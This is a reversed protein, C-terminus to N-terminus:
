TGIEQKRREVFARLEEAVGPDIPPQEYQTLLEKWLKTAHQATDLRGQDEWLGISQRDSLIPRYFEREYRALTHSTGFHHGGPGVQAMMDVALTEASVEVPEFLRQMM